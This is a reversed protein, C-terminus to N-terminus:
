SFFKQQLNVSRWLQSATTIRANKDNVNGYEARKEIFNFKM